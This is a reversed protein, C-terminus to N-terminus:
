ENVDYKFVSVNMKPFFINPVEPSSYGAAFGHRADVFQFDYMEYFPQNVPVLQYTWTQGGDTTQLMATGENLSGFSGVAMGKLEDSFNFDNIKLYLDNGSQTYEAPLTAVSFSQAGDNSVYVISNLYYSTTLNMGSVVIQQENIVEIAQMIVGDGTPIDNNEIRNWHFGNDTTKYILGHETIFYGTAGSGFEMDVIEDIIEPEIVVADDYFNSVWSFDDGGTTSLTIINNWATVIVGEGTTRIIDCWIDTYGSRQVYEWSSGGNNTRLLGQNGACAFATSHNLALVDYMQSNGTEEYVRNWSQGGDTTHAIFKWQEAYLDTYGYGVAFGNAEDSFSIGSFREGMDFGTVPLEQWQVTGVNVTISHSEETGDINAVAKLTYIGASQTINWNWVWPSDTITAQLEDNLYMKVGGSVNGNIMLNVPITTGIAQFSGDSPSTIRITEPIPENNLHLRTIEQDFLNYSVDYDFYGLLNVDIGANAELGLTFDLNYNTNHLKAELTSKAFIDFYPGAMGYLKLSVEPGCRATFSADGDLTPWALDFTPAPDWENILTWDDDYKIGLERNFAEYAYTEFHANSTGSARLKLAAQPVFVIPVPGAMITWPTFNISAIDLDTPSWSGDGRIGVTAEQDVEISSYINLDPPLALLDVDLGFNFAVEFYLSGYAVVDGSSTLDKEFSLDFGLLDTGKTQNLKVGDSLTMTKVQAPTLKEKKLEIKGKLIVEDLQVPETKCINGKSTTEVSTIRRLLGYPTKESVGAALIDGAKLAATGSPWAAFTVTFDVTDITSINSIYNETLVKVNEAIVIESTEPEPEPDTKDKKCNTLTLAFLIGLLYFLHKISLPNRKMKISNPTIFNNTM